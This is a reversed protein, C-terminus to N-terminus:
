TKSSVNSQLQTHGRMHLAAEVRNRVHLKQLVNTVYHKVTKESLTLQRAIEKNTMGLGMHDLIQQERITLGSLTTKTPVSPKQGLQKMLRAALGPAMYSEGGCVSLLVRALEAGTSGKLIYGVAGAKFAATVIEAGDSATLIVIATGPCGQSIATAAHLGCGPLKVDMVVVDPKLHKAQSVADQANGVDGVVDFGGAQVLSQGVGFRFMPQEDVILVRLKKPM